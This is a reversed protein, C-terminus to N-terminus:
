KVETVKLLNTSGVTDLGAAVVVTEGATVFGSSKAAEIANAVVEDTNSATPTVMSYVGFSFALGKAVKENPTVAVIPCDPRCQSIRRATAGSKTSTVIAAAKLENAANCAARSIVGSVAPTHNKARSVATEYSLKKETEEAIRAMTQVSEVPWDGNASEGSLMIADTGDYIANAVDSVEARTPRPNRMMSDLMQTATVVPKGAANCKEIMMKQVAPLKEFPIEVGLDGRAVMLGDSAELIADINDVGEQNEIKSIIKIDEGGNENLIQRITEVDSAKRIFSAAVANVGIECGFKLDAIDKETLAPLKISVGPVNVGKHTAVFGTNQVTCHIKNGEISEVTLGM